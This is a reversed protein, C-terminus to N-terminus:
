IYKIVFRCIQGYMFYLNIFDSIFLLQDYIDSGADSWIDYVESRTDSWLDYEDARADSWKEYPINDYADDLIGDYFRDYMDDLVGDYIEDYIEDRADEYVSDYLADFEDYKDDFSKDSSLILEAYASSYERLRICLLKTDNQVRDYFDKVKGIDTKYKDYTNIDTSLKEFETNLTTITDTVDKLVLEDLEEINYAKTVTTKSVSKSNSVTDNTTKEGCASLSFLMTIALLLTLFKKM